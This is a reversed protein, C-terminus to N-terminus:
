STKQGKKEEKNEELLPLDLLFRVNNKTKFDARQYATDVESEAVETVTRVSRPDEWGMLYSPTTNLVEAFASIKSQTIDNVGMEIKNVTSKSKYGLMKALEGQTLKMEERKDKIRSGISKM